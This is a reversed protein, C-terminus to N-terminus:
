ACTLPDKGAPAVVVLRGSRGAVAVSLVGGAVPQSSREYVSHATYEAGAALGMAALPFSVPETAATRNGINLAAVARCPGLQSWWRAVCGGEPSGPDNVLRCAHGGFEPTHCRCDGQFATHLGSSNANILLALPNTILNLTGADVPLSAGIMLPSKAMMWM